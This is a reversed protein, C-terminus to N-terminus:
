GYLSGHGELWVVGAPAVIPGGDLLGFYHDSPFPTGARQRTPWYRPDRGLEVRPIGAYSMGDVRAVHEAAVWGTCFVVARHSGGHLRFDNCQQQWAILAFWDKDSRGWLRLQGSGPPVAM